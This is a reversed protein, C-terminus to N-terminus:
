RQYENIIEKVKEQVHNMEKKLEILDNSLWRFHWAGEEVETVAGRTKAATGLLSQFEALSNRHLSPSVAWITAYYVFTDFGGLGLQRENESPSYSFRDFCLLEEDKTIEFLTDVAKYQFSEDKDKRGPALIDGWVLHASDNMHVRTESLFRADQFPIVSEPAYELFANEGVEVHFRQTSWLGEKEPYVKTASQPIMRVHTNEGLRFGFDNEDGAVMGGSTEVLYVVAEEESEPYLVRSVRLPPHQYVKNLVTKNNKQIFSLTLQGKLNLREKLAM